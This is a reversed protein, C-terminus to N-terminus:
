DLTYNAWIKQVLVCNKEPKDPKRNVTGPLRLIRRPEFVVTDVEGTLGAADLANKIKNCVGTYHAKNNKFFDKDYIEQELGILFHFGNGSSVIGIERRSVNLVSCVVSIYSEEYRAETKDIDFVIASLSKFDRKKDSCNAITYFLNWHENKPIKELIQEYNEFLEKVTEVEIQPYFQKDYTVLTNEKGMFSRLGLIQIM